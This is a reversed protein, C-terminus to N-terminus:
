YACFPVGMPKIDHIPHLSGMYTGKDILSIKARRTPPPKGELAFGVVISRNAYFIYILADASATTEHSPDPSQGVVVHRWTLHPISSCGGSSRM